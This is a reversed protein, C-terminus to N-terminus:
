WANLSIMPFFGWRNFSVIREWPWIEGGLMAKKSMILSSDQCGAATFDEGWQSLRLKYYRKQYEEHFNEADQMMWSSMKSSFRGRPKPGFSWVFARCEMFGVHCCSSFCVKGFCHSLVAHEWSASLPYPGTPDHLLMLLTFIFPEASSSQSWFETYPFIIPQTHLM